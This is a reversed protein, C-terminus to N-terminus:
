PEVDEGVNAKLFRGIERGLDSEILQHIGYGVALTTAIRGVKSGLIAGLLFAGGSAALIVAGPRAKVQAELKAPLERGYAVLSALQPYDDDGEDGGMVDAAGRRRGNGPISAAFPNEENITAM